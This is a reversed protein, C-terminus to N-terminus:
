FWKSGGNEQIRKELLEHKSENDRYHDIFTAYPLGQEIAEKPTV